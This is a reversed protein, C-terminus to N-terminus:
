LHAHGIPVGTDVLSRDGLSRRSWGRELSYEAAILPLERHEQEDIAEHAVIRHQRGIEPTRAPADLEAMFCAVTEYPLNRAVM